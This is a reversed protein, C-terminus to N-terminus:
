SMLKNKIKSKQHNVMKNRNLIKSQINSQLNLKTTQKSKEEHLIPKIELEVPIVKDILKAKVAQDAQM